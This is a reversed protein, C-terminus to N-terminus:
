AAGIKGLVLNVLSRTQHLYKSLTQQFHAVRAANGTMEVM